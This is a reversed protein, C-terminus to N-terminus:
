LDLIAEGLHARLPAAASDPSTLKRGPPSRQADTARDTPGEALLQHTLVLYSDPEPQAVVVPPLNAIALGSAPMAERKALVLELSQRHSREHVWLGGLSATALALSAAVAPWLLSSAQTRAAARGAEFLMQDRDLAAPAPQWRRLRRELDSLDREPSDM